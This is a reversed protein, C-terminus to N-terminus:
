EVMRLAAQGSRWVRCTGLEERILAARAESATALAEQYLQGAENIRNKRWLLCIKLVHYFPDSISTRDPVMADAHSLWSRGEEHMGMRCATLGAYVM